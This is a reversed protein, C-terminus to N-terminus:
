TLPMRATTAAPIMTPSTPRAFVECVVRNLRSPKQSNSEKTTLADRNRSIPRRISMPWINSCMGAIRIATTVMRTARATITYPVENM